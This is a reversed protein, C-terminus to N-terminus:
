TKKIVAPSPSPTTIPMSNEGSASVVSGSEQLLNKQLKMIEHEPDIGDDQIDSSDELTDVVVPPCTAPVTGLIADLAEFYDKRKSEGTKGTKDKLKRYEGKLRCQQFTREFGSESLERAIKIFVNASTASTACTACTASTASTACTAETASTACTPSTASTLYCQYCQYCQYCVMFM